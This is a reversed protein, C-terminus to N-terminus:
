ICITQEERTTGMATQLINQCSTRIRYFSNYSSKMQKVVVFCLCFEGFKGLSQRFGIGIRLEVGAM